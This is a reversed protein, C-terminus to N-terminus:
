SSAWSRPCAWGTRPQPTDRFQDIVDELEDDSMPSRALDFQMSASMQEAQRTAALRQMLYNSALDVEGLAM